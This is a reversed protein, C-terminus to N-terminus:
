SSLFSRLSMKDEKTPLDKLSLGLKDEEPNEDFNLNEFDLDGDPFSPVTTEAVVDANSILIRTFLKKLFLLFFFVIWLVFVYNKGSFADTLLDAM